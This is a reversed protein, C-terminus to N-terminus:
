GNNVEGFSVLELFTEFLDQENKTIFFKGCANDIWELCENYQDNADEGNSNTIPCPDEPSSLTRIIKEFLGHIKSSEFEDKKYIYEHLSRQLIAKLFSIQVSINYGNNGKHKRIAELMEISMIEIIFEERTSDFILRWPEYLDPNVELKWPHREKKENVKNKGDETFEQILLNSSALKKGSKKDYSFICFTIDGVNTPLKISVNKDKKFVDKISGFEYIKDVAKYWFNFVLISDEFKKITDLDKDSFSLHLLSEEDQYSYRPFIKSHNSKSTTVRSTKLEKM